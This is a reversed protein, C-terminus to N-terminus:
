YLSLRLEHVDLFIHNEFRPPLLLLYFERYLDFVKNLCKYLMCLNILQVVNMMSSKSYWNNEQLSCELVLM